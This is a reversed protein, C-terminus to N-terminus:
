LWIPESEPTLAILRTSLAEDPFAIGVDIDLYPSHVDPLESHSSWVEIPKNKDYEYRDLELEHIGAPIWDTEGTQYKLYTKVRIPKFEFGHVLGDEYMNNGKRNRVYYM